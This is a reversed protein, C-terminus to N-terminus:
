LALRWLWVDGDEEDVIPGDLDFGLRRLVRTSPGEQPLTKASLSDLDGEKAIEILATAMATAVGAGEYPPFTFYAIEAENEDNPPTAFACTGVVAADEERRALYGIWPFENGRKEYLARTADAIGQLFPAAIEPNSWPGALAARPDDALADLFEGDLRILEL